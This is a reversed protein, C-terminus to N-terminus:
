VIIGVGSQNQARREPADAKTDMITKELIADKELDKEAVKESDSKMFRKLAEEQIQLQKAEFREKSVRKQEMICQLM